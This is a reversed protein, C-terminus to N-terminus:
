LCLGVHTDGGNYVTLINDSVGNGDNDGWNSIEYRTDDTCNNYACDPTPVTALLGDAVVAAVKKPYDGHKLRYVKIAESITTYDALLKTAAQELVTVPIDPINTEFKPAVACGGSLGFAITLAVIIVKNM